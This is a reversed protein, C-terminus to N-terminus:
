HSLDIDGEIVGFAKFNIAFTYYAVNSRGLVNEAVQVSKLQMQFTEVIKAFKAASAKLFQLLSHARFTFHKLHDCM